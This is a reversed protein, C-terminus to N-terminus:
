QSAGSVNASNACAKVATSYCFSLQCTRKPTTAEEVTQQITVLLKAM